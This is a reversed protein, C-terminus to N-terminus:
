APQWPIVEIDVTLVVGNGHMERELAEMGVALQRLGDAAAVPWM